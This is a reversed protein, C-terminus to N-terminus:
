SGYKEGYQILLTQGNNQAQLGLIVFPEWVGSLTHKIEIADRIIPFPQKIDATVLRAVSRAGTVIVMGAGAYADDLSM